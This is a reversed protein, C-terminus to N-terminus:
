RLLRGRGGGVLVAKGQEARRAVGQAARLVGADRRCGDTARRDDRLACRAVAQEPGDVADRELKRGAAKSGYFTCRYCRAPIAGGRPVDRSLVPVPSDRALFYRAYPTNAPVHYKAGPDFDRRAHAAAAAFRGSVEEASGVVGQQLQRADDRRLVGELAVPRGAPRVSPVRSQRAGRKLLLMTDSAAPPVQELLGVTKLYDPTIALAIADGIAEHFGDNAGNQFLPPQTSTPASLLLRPRGRSPHHRLRRGDARTCTKM